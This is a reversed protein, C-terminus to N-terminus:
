WRYLGIAYRCWTQVGKGVMGPDFEKKFMWTSQDRPGSFGRLPAIFRKHLSTMHVGHLLDSFFKAVMGADFEIKFMCTYQLDLISCIWFVTEYANYKRM